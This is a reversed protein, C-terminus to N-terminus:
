CVGARRNALPMPLCPHFIDLSHPGSEIESRPRLKGSRRNDNFTSHAISQSGVAVLNTAMIVLKKLEFVRPEEEKPAKDEDAQM